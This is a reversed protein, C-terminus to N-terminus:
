IRATCAWSVISSAAWASAATITMQSTSTTVGHARVNGATATEVWAACRPANTWNPAGFNIVIQTATGGTGIDVAGVTNRSNSQIAPSTGGGSAITPAATGVNFQMGITGGSSILNTLGDGNSTIQNRTTGWKLNGGTAVIFSTGAYVSRPQASTTGVDVANDTIPEFAGTTQTVKWRNAVGAEAFIVSKSSSIIIDGATEGGLVANAVLFDNGSWGLSGRAYQSASTYTRYLNYSNANAGNRQALTNAADRNLVLDDNWTLNTGVQLFFGSTGQRLAVFSGGACILITDAANYGIGTNADGSFALPPTTCGTPTVPLTLTGVSSLGTSDIYAKETGQYRFSAIKGTGQQNIILLPQAGTNAQLQMSGNVQSWSQALLPWAAAVMLGVVFVVTAAIRSQKM